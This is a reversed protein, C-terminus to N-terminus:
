TNPAVPKDLAPDLSVGRLVCSTDLVISHVTISDQHLKELRQLLGSASQVDPVGAALNVSSMQLPQLFQSLCQSWSVAGHM